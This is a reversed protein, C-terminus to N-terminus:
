NIAERCRNVNGLPSVPTANREPANSRGIPLFLPHLAKLPELSNLQHPSLARYNNDALGVVKHAIPIRWLTGIVSTASELRPVTWPGM